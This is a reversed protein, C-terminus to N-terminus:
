KLVKINKNKYSWNSHGFQIILDIGLREVDIPIDCAGFCSDFYIFCNIKTKEEIYDYIVQSYPKLGEPFQLLVNKSKQKKITNIIKGLELDYIKEIEEISKNKITM